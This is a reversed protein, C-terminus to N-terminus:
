RLEGSKLQEVYKRCNDASLQGNIEPTSIYFIITSILKEFKEEYKVLDNCELLNAWGVLASQDVEGLISRELATSLANRTLIIPNEPTSELLFTRLEEKLNENAKLKLM